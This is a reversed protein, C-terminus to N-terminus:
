VNDRWYDKTNLAYEAQKETGYYESNRSYPGCEPCWRGVCYGAASQCVKLPMM